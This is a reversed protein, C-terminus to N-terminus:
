SRIWRACRRVRLSIVDSVELDLENANRVESFAEAHDVALVAMFLAIVVITLVILM